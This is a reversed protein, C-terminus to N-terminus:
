GGRPHVRARRAPRATRRADTRQVRQLRQRRGLRAARPQGPRPARDGAVRLDRSSASAARAAGPRPRRRRGRGSDRPRTCRTSGGRRAARDPGARDRRDRELREEREHARRDLVDGVSPGAAASVPGTARPSTSVTRAGGRRAAPRALAVRVARQGARACRSAPRASGSSSATSRHDDDLPDRLQALVALLRAAGPLGDPEHRRHAVEM